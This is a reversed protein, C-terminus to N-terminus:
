DEVQAGFAQRLAAPAVRHAGRGRCQAGRFSATQGSEM